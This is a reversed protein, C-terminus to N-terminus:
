ETSLGHHEVLYDPYHQQLLLFLDNILNLAHRVAYEHNAGRIQVALLWNGHRVKCSARARRADLRKHLPHSRQSRSSVLARMEGAMASAPDVHPFLAEFTMVERPADFAAHMPRRLLWTFQYEVRGRPAPTAQFGRFV